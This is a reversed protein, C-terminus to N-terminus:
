RENGTKNPIRVRGNEDIYPAAATQAMEILRGIDYNAEANIQAKIFWLEELIPDHRQRALQVPAAIVATLAEQSTPTDPTASPNM